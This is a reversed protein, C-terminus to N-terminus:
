VEYEIILDHSDGPFGSHGHFSFKDKYVMWDHNVDEFFVNYNHKLIANDIDFIQKEKNNEDIIINYLMDEHLITWVKKIKCNELGLEKLSKSEGNIFNRLIKRKM